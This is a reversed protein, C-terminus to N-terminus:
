LGRVLVSERCIVHGVAEWLVRVGVSTVQPHIRSSLDDDVVQEGDDSVDYCPICAHLAM